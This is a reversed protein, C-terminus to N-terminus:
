SADELNSKFNLFDSYVLDFEQKELEKNWRPVEYAQMTGLFLVMILLVLMAGVVESVGKENDFLKM